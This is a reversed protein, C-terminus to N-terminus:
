GRGHALVLADEIVSHMGSIFRDRTFLSARAECALRMNIAREPTMKRVAEMLDGESFGPPLLTGTEDPVITEVLGGEAVGIVPKGAAMSEVPSIGFDEDHPVYITAIANGILEALESDGIWGRFEINSAGTAKRRLADLQEGGSAVILRKDPMNLFADIVHEVRKLPTLRATSVYYDGQGCWRFAGLECPPYIVEADRGLYRKIRKRVTESNAIIVDMRSVSAEYGRQYWDLVMRGLLSQEIRGSFYQRQDYLFRPPTHCYYINLGSMTTEAAFPAAAGSFMRVPFPRLLHRSAHFQMALAMTRLAPRRLVSPPDLTVTDGPFADESYTDPTRYGTVLRADFATAATLVLREGGGRIAFYDHAIALKNKYSASSISLRTDQNNPTSARSSARPRELM